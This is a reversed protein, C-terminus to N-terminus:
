LYELLSVSCQSPVRDEVATLLFSVQWHRKEM